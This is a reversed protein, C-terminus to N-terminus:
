RDRGVVRRRQVRYVFQTLFPVAGRREYRRMAETNTTIVGILMDKIGLECLRAEVANLLMSGIGQGRMEPPLVLIALEALLDSASWSARYWSNVGVSPALGM